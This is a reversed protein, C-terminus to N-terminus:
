REMFGAVTLSVELLTQQRSKSSRKHRQKITLDTLFLLPTTTDIEYLLKRLSVIDMALKVSLSIKNFPGDQAVALVQTSSLEGGVETILTTLSKQLQASALAPTVSPYFLTSESLEKKKIKIQQLAADKKNVSAKIKVRRQELDQREQYLDDTTILVPVIVFGLLGLLCLIVLGTAKVRESIEM